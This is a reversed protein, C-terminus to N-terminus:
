NSGGDGDVACLILYLKDLDVVLGILSGGNGSRLGKDALLDCCDEAGVARANRDGGAGGKRIVLYNGDAAGAGIRLDGRVIIEIEANAEKIGELAGNHCVVSLGM